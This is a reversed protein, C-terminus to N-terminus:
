KKLAQRYFQWNKDGLSDYIAGQNHGVDFADYDHAIELKTLQEHFSRNGPLLAGVALRVAMKGRVKAANKEVLVRPNEAQFNEEKGGFIREYLAAHRSQMTGLDVLAADIMSVAAFLEPYKFGLHAAGFGGMSFGEIIRGERNALTRYTADIHPILDKIIVTEVPVRRDSTDCYFSDRVGNVFVILMPPAKGQTIADDFREVLRPIGTQAGGIGHLWYMVPFRAMPSKEYEAPLYIVYSVDTGITASHFTRYQSNRAEIKERVWEPATVAAQSAGKRANADPGAAAAAPAAVVPGAAVLGYKAFWNRMLGFVETAKDRDVPHNIGEFVHRENPVNNRDLVEKLALSQAPRVTNDISGHFIIFPIKIKGAMEASPAAFGERPAIGSGSVAAAVLRGPERGALGITVFGGMSHGYACLKKSDVEPMAALIDLCKSARRLNEDSAGYNAREPGQPNLKQGPTPAHAYDCAICVLGWKVFERAKSMGFAQASGGLGHSILIAPFPGKGEPKLFIGHMSLKDDKYTWRDGDLQFGAPLQRPEDTQSVLTVTTGAAAAPALNGLARAGYQLAKEYEPDFDPQGTTGKLVDASYVGLYDCGVREAAKMVDILPGTTGASTADLMEFYLRTQKDWALFPSARQSDKAYNNGRLGNQGVFCGRAVCHDGIAQMQNPGDLSGVNLTVLLRTKKFAAVADDVAEKVTQLWLEHSYKRGDSAPTEAFRTKFEPEQVNIRRFRYPNTEAGPTVDIFLVNPDGDFKRAVEQLFKAAYKRYVPDWILPIDTRSSDSHATVAGRDLVWQPTPHKAAPEPWNGSSSWMIRLAVKKGAITWGAIRRDIEDWDFQGEKPEVNSWYITHLAGIIYPNKTAGLNDREPYSAFFLLGTPQDMANQQAPGKTQGKLPQALIAGVISTGIAAVAIWIWTRALNTQM